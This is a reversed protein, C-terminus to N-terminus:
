LSKVSKMACLEPEVDIVRRDISVQPLSSLTLMWGIILGAELQECLM